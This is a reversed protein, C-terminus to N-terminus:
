PGHLTDEIVPAQVSHLLDQDLVGVCVFGGGPLRKAGVFRKAAVKDVGVKV